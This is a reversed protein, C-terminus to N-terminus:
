EGKKKFDMSVSNMCYRLGTPAPGDDFVHGLHAGCNSCLVETRSMGLTGDTEENVNEKKSPQWFSPWGTGSEFKTDSSFLEQGCCVCNYVGEEHNDWYKNKFPRETGKERAVRYQEETLQNKWEEKSKMVNYKGEKSNTHNTSDSAAVVRKNETTQNKVGCSFFMGVALILASFFMTKM